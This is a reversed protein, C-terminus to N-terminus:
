ERLLVSRLRTTDNPTWGAPELIAAWADALDARFTHGHGEPVSNSAGPEVVTTRPETESAM